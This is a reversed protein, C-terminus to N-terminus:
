VRLGGRRRLYVELLFGCAAAFAVVFALKLDEHTV